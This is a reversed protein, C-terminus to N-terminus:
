EAEFHPHANLGDDGQFNSGTKATLSPQRMSCKTMLLYTYTNLVDRRTFCAGMPSTVHFM